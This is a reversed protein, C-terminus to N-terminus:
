FTSWNGFNGLSGVFSSAVNEGNRPRNETSTPEQLLKDEAGPVVMGEGSTARSPPADSTSHRRKLMMAKQWFSFDKACAECAREQFGKPHFRAHQDLPVQYRAHDACFINGCRRCHHRRRLLGFPLNCQTMDCESVAEDPQLNM